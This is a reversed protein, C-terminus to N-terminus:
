QLLIQREIINERSYKRQSVIIIRNMGSALSIDTSFYGNNELIILEGNISLQADPDTKGSINLTNNHTLIDTEPSFIILEPLEMAKLLYFSLYFFFALIILILLINRIIKPFVLFNKKGLIKKLFPNNNNEKKNDLSEQNILERPNIKLFNAYKLLFNKGYLGKPLLNFNENEMAILYEKKIGTKKAVHELSFNLVTRAQRLREGIKEDINLNKETFIPTM